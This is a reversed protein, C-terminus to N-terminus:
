RTANEQPFLLWMATARPVGEGERGGAADLGGM